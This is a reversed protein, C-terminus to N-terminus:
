QNTVSSKPRLQKLLAVVEPSSRLQGNALAADLMPLAPQGIGDMILYRAESRENANASNLAAIVIPMVEASKDIKKLCDMVAFPDVASDQNKLADKLATQLAPVASKARPGLKALMRLAIRPSNSKDSKAQVAEVLTPLASDTQAPDIVNLVDAISVRLPLTETQLLSIMAPVAPKAHAGLQRLLALARKQEQPQGNQLLEVVPMITHPAQERDIRVLAEASTQRFNRDDAKLAALLAPIAQKADPGLDPLISAALTGLARDNGEVIKIVAPIATSANPGLRRLALLVRNSQSADAAKLAELLAPTSERGVNALVEAALYHQDNSAMVVNVMTPILETSKCGAQVLCQMAELRQNKDDGRAGDHLVDFAAKHFGVIKYLALAARLKPTDREVALRKELAPAAAKATPGIATFIRYLALRYGSNPNELRSILHPTAPAGIQTLVQEANVAFNPEALLVLLHPVIPEGAQAVVDNFSNGCRCRGIGGVLLRRLATLTAAEDIKVLAQLTAAHGRNNVAYEILAPAAAKADKGIWALTAVARARVKEDKSKLEEILRPVADTGSEKCKFSEREVVPAQASALPALMGCLLGGFLFTSIRFM